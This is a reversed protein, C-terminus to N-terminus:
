DVPARAYKVALVEVTSKAFAEDIRLAGRLAEIYADEAENIGDSAMALEVAVVFCQKRLRESPLAGLDRLLAERSARPPVRVPEDRLQPITRFFAAILASEKEDVRGDVAGVASLVDRLARADGPTAVELATYQTLLGM